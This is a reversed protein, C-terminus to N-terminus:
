MSENINKQNIMEAIEKQYEVNMPDSELHSLKKQYEMQQKRKELAIKKVHQTLESIDEQMIM